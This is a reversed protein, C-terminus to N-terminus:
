CSQLFSEVENLSPQPDIAGKSRCVLAGCCSAFNICKNIEEFTNLKYYREVLKYLLGATFADGAGTTDVVSITSFTPSEGCIGNLIWKVSYQGNTIVVDPMQPLSKSIELPNDTDFFWLAEEKALKLLNAKNLLPLILKLALENPGSSPLLNTDWFTPRWNVDLAIRIGNSVANNVAWLLSESSTSKALPITGIVLWKSDASILPWTKKLLSLELFQDAFGKGEDCHFGHFSRDGDKDRKVLVVRSPRCNDIQLAQLNVGRKKMMKYFKEGIQDNGLRGVFAVSVGLRALASAVNAPAGGLFDEYESANSISRGPLGLRDVLAEGLCIIKPKKISNLTTM